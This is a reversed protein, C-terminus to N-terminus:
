RVARGFVQELMHKDPELTSGGVNNPVGFGNIGCEHFYDGGAIKYWSHLVVEFNGNTPCGSNEEFSPNPVLNQAQISLSLVLALLILALKHFGKRDM